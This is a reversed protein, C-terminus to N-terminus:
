NGNSDGAKTLTSAELLARTYALTVLTEVLKRESSLVFMKDIPEKLEALAETHTNIM